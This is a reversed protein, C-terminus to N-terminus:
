SGLSMLPYSGSASKRRSVAWATKSAVRAVSFLRASCRFSSFGVATVAPSPGLFGVPVSQGRPFVWFGRRVDAIPQREFCLPHCLIQVTRICLRDGSLIM